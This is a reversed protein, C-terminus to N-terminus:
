SMEVFRNLASIDEYEVRWRDFHSAMFQAVIRQGYETTQGAQGEQGVFSCKYLPNNSQRSLVDSHGLVLSYKDVALKQAFRVNLLQRCVIQVDQAIYATPGIGARHDAWKGTRPLCVLRDYYRFTAKEHHAVIAIVALVAMDPSKKVLFAHDSSCTQEEPALQVGWFVCLDEVFLQTCRSRASRPAVSAALEKSICAALAAGVSILFVYQVASRPSPATHLM